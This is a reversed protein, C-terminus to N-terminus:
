RIELSLDLSRSDKTLTGLSIFDVGTQAYSCINILNINGSVELPTKRQASQTKRRIAVAKKVEVVKMNDLMVIDPSAKLAQKFERLNKVEIELKLKKPKKKKIAELIDKVCSARRMVCSATLHNDKILVMEDLRFRHNYGGGTRVAYKQLERLGPITKRTDMIKVKYKKVENVLESTRTAIGSLLGLFNLAVREASLVSSPKGYLKALVQGKKIRAGDEVSPIFKINNDQLKFTLGAIGLGCIIGGEGALIVAKIKKEKLFLLKSTIDGRGIDEALARKITQKIKSDKIYNMLCRRWAGPNM